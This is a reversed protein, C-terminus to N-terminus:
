LINKNSSILIPYARKNKNFLYGGGLQCITIEVYHRSVKAFSVWDSKVICFIEVIVKSSLPEPVKNGRITIYFGFM